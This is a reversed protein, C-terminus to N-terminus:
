CTLYRCYHQDLGSGAFVGGSQAIAWVALMALLLTGLVMAVVSGTSVQPMSEVREMPPGIQREYTRSRNTEEM